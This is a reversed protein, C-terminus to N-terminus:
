ARARGRGATARRAGADTTGPIPTGPGSRAARGPRSRRRGRSPVVGSAGPLPAVPIAADAAGREAGAFIDRVADIDPHALPEAGLELM